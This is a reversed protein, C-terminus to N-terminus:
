CRGLEGDRLDGPKGSCDHRSRRLLARRSLHWYCFLRAFPALHRRDHGHGSQTSRRLKVRAPTRCEVATCPPGIVAVQRETEVVRRKCTPSAALHGADVRPVDGPQRHLVAPSLHSPAASRRHDRADGYGHRRRRRENQYLVKFQPGSQIAFTVGDENLCFIQRRLDLTSTTFGGRGGTVRKKDYVVKGTKAEYCSMFGRDFLMYLNAGIILPTPHYPATKMSWALFKSQPKGAVPSINGSAGPRIAYTRNEGFAVHGSMVFLLGFQEFPRPIAVASKGEVRWLEKGHLDYSQAFFKGNVVIETRLPNEWM